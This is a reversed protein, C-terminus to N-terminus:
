LRRYPGQLYVDTIDKKLVRSFNIKVLYIALIYLPEHYSEIFQAVM